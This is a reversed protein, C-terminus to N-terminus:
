ERKPPIVKVLFRFVAKFLDAGLALGVFAKTDLTISILLIGEVHEPSETQTMLLLIRLMAYLIYKM